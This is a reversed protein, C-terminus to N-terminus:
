SVSLSSRAGSLFVHLVRILSTALSPSAFGVRGHLLPPSVRRAMQFCTSDCPLADVPRLYMYTKMGRPLLFQAAAGVERGGWKSLDGVQLWRRTNILQTGHFPRYGSSVIVTWEGCTSCLCIASRLSGFQFFLSFNKSGQLLLSKGWKM